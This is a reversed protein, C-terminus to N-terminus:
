RRSVENEYQNCVDSYMWRPDHINFTFMGVERETIVANKGNKWSHSNLDWFLWENNRPHKPNASPLGYTADILDHPIERAPIAWFSHGNVQGSVYECIFKEM